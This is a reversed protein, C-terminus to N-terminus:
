WMPTAVEVAPLAEDDGDHSVGVLLGDEVKRSPCDFRRAAPARAPLPWLVLVEVPDVKVMVDSPARLPPRKAVGMMLKGSTAM